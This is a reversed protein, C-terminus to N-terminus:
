RHPRPLRESSWEADTSRHWEMEEPTVPRLMLDFALWGLKAFPYLAPVLALMLLPIGYQLLDWPVDPWRAILVVALTALTLVGALSYLIMMSGSFYDHEGRELRLGCRGCRVQLKLWHRLVPGGGCNPCRLRFARGFLRGVQRPSALELGSRMEDYTM